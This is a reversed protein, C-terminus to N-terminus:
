KGLNKLEDLRSNMRVLLYIIYLLATFTMAKEGAVDGAWMIVLSIALTILFNITFNKM